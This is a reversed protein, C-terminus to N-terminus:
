ASSVARWSRRDEKPSNKHTIPTKGNNREISNTKKRKEQSFKTRIKIKRIGAHKHLKQTPTGRKGPGKEQGHDGRLKDMVTGFYRRAAGRM